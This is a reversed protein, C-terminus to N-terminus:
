AVEAPFLGAAATAYSPGNILLIEPAIAKHRNDRRGQSVLAKTTACCVKTWGAYLEDLLPHAYYSVVVRTRRFKGLLMALRAHDAEGEFDHWYRAGKTVYPPDVYAVQGDADALREILGFADESRIDVNALRRGFALASRVASRYRTVSDGGGLLTYRKSANVNRDEHQTGSYGNMGLWSMAYYAVAREVPSAAEDGVLAKADSVVGDYLTWNRALRFFRLRDRPDRLVRALNIIRQNLDNVVEVACPPKALLVAMSGAFPEVYARHPGLQEVIRPALTRKAGFWPVLAGCTMDAAPANM